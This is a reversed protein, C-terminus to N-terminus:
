VIANNDNRRRTSEGKAVCHDYYQTDATLKAIYDNLGAEAAQYAADSNASKASRNSEATVQDILVVGLLTLASIMMVVTAMAMGEQRRIDLRLKKMVYKM